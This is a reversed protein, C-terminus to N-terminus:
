EENERYVTLDEIIIFYVSVTGFLDYLFYLDSNKM